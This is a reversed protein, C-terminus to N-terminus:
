AQRIDDYGSKPVFRKTAPNLIQFWVEQTDAADGSIRRAVLGATEGTRITSCLLRQAVADDAQALTMLITLAVCHVKLM